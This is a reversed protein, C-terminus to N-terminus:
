PKKEETAPKKSLQDLMARPLTISLSVDSVKSGIKIQDLLQGIFDTKPDGAGFIGKILSVLGKLGDELAM